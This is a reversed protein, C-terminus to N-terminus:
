TPVGGAWYRRPSWGNAPPTGGGAGVERSVNEGPGREQIDMWYYM